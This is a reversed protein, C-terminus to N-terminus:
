ICVCVCMCGCACVCVSVHVCLCVDVHECVCVGVCESVWMCVCEYMRCHLHAYRRRDRQGVGCRAAEDGEQTKRSGGNHTHTHTHTQRASEMQLAYWLFCFKSAVVGDAIQPCCNEFREKQLFSHTQAHASLYETAAAGVEETELISYRITKQLVITLHIV